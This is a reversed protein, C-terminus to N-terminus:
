CSQVVYEYLSKGESVTENDFRGVLIPAQVPSSNDMTLATSDSELQSVLVVFSDEPITKEEASDVFSSGGDGTIPQRRYVRNAFKDKFALFPDQSRSQLGNDNIQLFSFGDDSDRLMKLLRKTPVIEWGGENIGTEEFLNKIAESLTELRLDDLTKTALNKNNKVVSVEFPGNKDSENEDAYLGKLVSYPSTEPVANAMFAEAATPAVTTTTPAMTTTTTASLTTSPAATTKKYGTSISETNESSSSINTITTSHIQVNPTVKQVIKCGTTSCRVTLFIDTHMADAYTSTKEDDLREVDVVEVVQPLSNIKNKFTHWKTITEQQGDQEQKTNSVDNTSSGDDSTPPTTTPEQQLSNDNIFSVQDSNAPIELQNLLGAMKNHFRNNAPPKREFIRAPQRLQEELKIKNMLYNVFGPEKLKEVIATTIQKNDATATLRNKYLRKKIESYLRQVFQTDKVKEFILTADDHKTIASLNVSSSSKETSTTSTTSQTTTTTMEATTTDPSAAPRITVPLSPLTTAESDNDLIETSNELSRTLVNDSYRKEAEEVFRLLKYPNQLQM